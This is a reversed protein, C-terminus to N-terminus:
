HSVTNSYHNTALSNPGYRRFKRNFQLKQTVRKVHVNQKLHLTALV